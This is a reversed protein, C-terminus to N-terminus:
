DVSIDFVVVGVANFKFVLNDAAGTEVFSYGTNLHVTTDVNAGNQTLTVEGYPPTGCGGTCHDSTILFTVAHAPPAAVALSLMVVGLVLVVRAIDVASVRKSM